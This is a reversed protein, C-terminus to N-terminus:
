RHSLSPSNPYDEDSSNNHDDEVMAAADAPIVDWGDKDLEEAQVREAEEGSGGGDGEEEDLKQQIVGALGLVSTGGIGKGAIDLHEKEHIVKLDEGEGGCDVIIDSASLEVFESQRASSEM